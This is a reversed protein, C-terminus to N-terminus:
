ISALYDTPYTTIPLPLAIDLNDVFVMQEETCCDAPLIWSIKEASKM